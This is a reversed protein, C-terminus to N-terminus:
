IAQDYCSHDCGHGFAIPTNLSFFDGVVNMTLRSLPVLPRATQSNLKIDTLKADKL